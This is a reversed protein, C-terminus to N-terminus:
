KAASKLGAEDLATKIAKWVKAEPLNGDVDVIKANPFYFSIADMERHYDKIRQEIIQPRDSERGTTKARERVTDDPVQLRLAVLKMKLDPFMKALDEAQVLTAPYGDLTIGHSLDATKLRERLYRSMAPDYRMEALSVGEGRLKDLEAANDRILDEISISPVGYSHSISDAFTTKGSLPPGILIILPQSPSSPATPSATQATVINALVLSLILLASRLMADGFRYSESAALIGRNGCCTM